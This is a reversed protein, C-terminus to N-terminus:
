TLFKLHEEAKFKIYDFHLRQFVKLYCLGMIMLSGHAENFLSRQM